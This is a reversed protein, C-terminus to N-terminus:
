KLLDSDLNLLMKMIKVFDDERDENEEQEEKMLDLKKLNEEVDYLNKKLEERKKLLDEQFKVIVEKKKKELDENSIVYAWYSGDGQRVLGNNSLEKENMAIVDVYLEKTSLKLSQRGNKGNVNELSFVIKKLHPFNEKKKPEHSNKLHSTFKSMSHFKEGCMGCIFISRTSM